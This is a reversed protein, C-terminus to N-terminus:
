TRMARPALQPALNGLAGRMYGDRRYRTADSIARASLVRVRRPGIRRILDVDERATLPRHGGAEDYHRRSILLGQDGYPMHLLACRLRAIGELTRPAFGEDDLAYRFAAARCRTSGRDVREMFNDAEREWGAELVTDPYLFLLWPHRAAHAGARMQAGRNAPTTILDAGAHDAIMGTHDTSGGDVVIVERVVGELAAPVLATLTAPLSAEANLTPIIVSIMPKQAM